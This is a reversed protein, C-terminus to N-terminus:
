YWAFDIDPFDAYIANNSCPNTSNDIDYWVQIFIYKNWIKIYIYASKSVFM